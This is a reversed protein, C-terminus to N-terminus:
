VKIVCLGSNLPEVVFGGPFVCFLKAKLVLSLSKYFWEDILFNTM